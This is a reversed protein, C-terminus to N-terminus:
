KRIRVAVRGANKNQALAIMCCVAHSVTLLAILLFM